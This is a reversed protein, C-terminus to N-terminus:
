HHCHSAVLELVDDKTVPKRRTQEVALDLMPEENAGTMVITPIGLLDRNRRQEQRFTPGDMNPMCVDLLILEPRLTSLLRLAEAGDRATAVSYGARAILAALLERADDDDDVILM